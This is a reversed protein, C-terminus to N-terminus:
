AAGAVEIARTLDAWVVEFRPMQRTAVVTGHGSGEDVFELLEEPVSIIGVFMGEGGSARGGRRRGRDFVADLGDRGGNRAGVRGGATAIGDQIDGEVLLDTVAVESRNPLAEVLLGLGGTGHLHDADSLEGLV